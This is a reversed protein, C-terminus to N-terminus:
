RNKAVRGTNAEFRMAKIRGISVDEVIVVLLIAMVHM